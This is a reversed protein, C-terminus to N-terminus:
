NSPKEDDTASPWALEPPLSERWDQLQDSLDQLAGVDQEQMWSKRQQLSYIRGMIGEVIIALTIWARLHTM